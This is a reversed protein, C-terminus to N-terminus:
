KPAHKTLIQQIQTRADLNFKGTTVLNFVEESAEKIWDLSTPPKDIKENWCTDCVTFVTGGEAKTRLKGCKDCPYLEELSAPNVKDVPLPKCWDSSGEPPTTCFAIGDNKVPSAPPTTRTNWENVLMEFLEDGNLESYDERCLSMNANCSTCYIAVSHGLQGTSMNRYPQLLDREPKGKCFPCPMLPQEKM